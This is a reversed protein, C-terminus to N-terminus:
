PDAAAGLAAARQQERGARPALGAADRGLHQAGAVREVAGSVGCPGRAVRRRKVRASAAPTAITAATTTRAADHM